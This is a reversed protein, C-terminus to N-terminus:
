AEDSADEEQDRGHHQNKKKVKRALNLLKSFIKFCM